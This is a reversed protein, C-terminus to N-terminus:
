RVGRGRGSDPLPRPTLNERIAQLVDDTNELVQQNPFRLIRYGLASIALDREQDYEVQKAHISGDVEVILGAAHCYFDVIYGAIIQQRRFHWGDLRNGRLCAWLRKEAKTGEQRLVKAAAIMRRNTKRGIVTNRVPM